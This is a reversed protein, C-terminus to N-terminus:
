CLTAYLLYPTQIIRLIKNSDCVETAETYLLNQKASRGAGSVASKADIIIDETLVLGAAILPVLPLQVCTPYCGPNAVVRAGKVAARHLETLGYVVEKQLEPAKHEGGYRGLSPTHTHTHSANM